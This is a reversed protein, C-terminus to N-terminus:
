STQNQKRIEDLESYPVHFNQHSATEKARKELEIKPDFDLGLVEILQNGDTNLECFPSMWLALKPELATIAGIMVDACLRKGGDPTKHWWNRSDMLPKIWTRNVQYYDLWKSPLTAKLEEFSSM